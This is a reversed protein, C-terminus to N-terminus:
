DVLDSTLLNKDLRVDEGFVDTGQLSVREAVQSRIIVSHRVYSDGLRAVM